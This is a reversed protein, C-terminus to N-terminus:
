RRNIIKVMDVQHKQRLCEDSLFNYNLAIMNLVSNKYRMYDFDTMNIHYVDRLRSDYNTYNHRVENVMATQVDRMRYENSKRKIRRYKVSNDFIERCDANNDIEINSIIDYLEKRKDMESKIVRKRYM